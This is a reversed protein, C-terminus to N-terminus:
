HKISRLNLELIIDFMKQVDDPVNIEVVEFLSKNKQNLYEQAFSRGIFEIGEFNMVVKSINNPISQYLKEIQIRSGLDSDIENKLVIEIESM